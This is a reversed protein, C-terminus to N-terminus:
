LKSEKLAAVEATLLQVQQILVAVMRDYALGHPLNKKEGDIEFEKYVVFEPFVKEVSEAILGIQEARSPDEKGVYRVPELKMIQESVNGLPRINEKYRQSSTAECLENGVWVAANGTVVGAFHRSYLGGDHPGAASISTVGNGLVVANNRGSVDTNTGNGVLVNGTGSTIVTGSGSGVATNTGGLANTLANSGVATNDNATTESHYTSTIASAFSVNYTGVGGTGTGFSVVTGLLISNVDFVQMGVYIIGAIMSNVTFVGAAASGVFWANSLAADGVATNRSSTTRLGRLTNSGHSTNSSGTSVLAQSYFGSASNNTGTTSADLARMGFASNPAVTSQRLTYSGVATNGSVNGTFFLASVGVAVNESGTSNSSLAQKGVATNATGNTNSILADFGVGTNEFGTNGTLAGRGIGVSQIGTPYAGLHGIYLSGNAGTTSSARMGSGAVGANGTLFAVNPNPYTGSLDGGAAGSPPLSAVTTWTPVGSALSLLQGNTGPPFEVLENTGNKFGALTATVPASPVTSLNHRVFFGGDVNAIIGQGLAVVGTRSVSDVNTGSGVLVNNVGTTLVNGSQHGITVNNNGKTLAQSAGNGVAVNRFGSTAFRLASNGVGINDDGTPQASRVAFNGIGINNQCGTTKALASVGFALNNSGADFGSMAGSGVATNGTGGVITGLASLVNSGLATNDNWIDATALANRGVATCGTSSVNNALARYGFATAGISTTSKVLAQYGVGTNESGTTNFQLTNNGIAINGTGSTLATLVSSGFGTNNVGTFTNNGSGAGVITAGSAAGTRASSGVAISGNGGAVAGSGIAISDIGTASASNGLRVSSSNGAAKTGIGYWVGATLNQPYQPSAASDLAVDVGATTGTGGNAPALVGSMVSNGTAPAFTLGTTGGSVSLVGTNSFINGLLNLGTGAVYSGSSSFQTFVMPDVGIAISGGFGVGVQTQVWGTGAYTPGLEAFIFDGAVVEGPPSNDFDSSRTLVWATSGDGVVSVVYVGNEQQTVQDKVLIRQTASVLTSDIQLAALVGNNTLTAGVGGAGNNYLATLPGTTVYQVPSHVNFGTAYADVYAKNVADGANVPAPLGTITSGDYTVATWSPAAAGNSVLLQGITGQVAGVPSTGNGYLVGGPSFTGAGTGGNAVVLTGGLVIPGANPGAPTLGTSGADFTLVGGGGGSGGVFSNWDISGTLVFEEVTSVGIIRPAGPLGGNITGLPDNPYVYLPNVSSGNRIVLRMGRTNSNTPPLRIGNGLLPVQVIIYESYQNCETADSQVSGGAVLTIDTPHLMPRSTATWGREVEVSSAFNHEPEVVGLSTDSEIDTFTTTINDGISAILRFPPTNGVATRYIRRSTISATPLISLQTLLVSGSSQVTASAPSALTEGYPTVYSIKYQYQGPTMFGFASDAAVSPASIPGEIDFGHELISTM